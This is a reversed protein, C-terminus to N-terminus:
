KLQNHYRKLSPKEIVKSVTQVSIGWLSFLIVTHWRKKRVFLVLIRSNRAVCPYQCKASASGSQILMAQTGKKPMM